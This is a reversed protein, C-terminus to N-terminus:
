ILEASRIELGRALRFLVATTVRAKGTELRSIYTRNMDSAVAVDIQMLGKQLRVRKLKRGFMVSYEMHNIM